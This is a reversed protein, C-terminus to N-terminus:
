KFKVLFLKINRTFRQWQEFDPVSNSNSSSPAVYQIKGQFHDVCKGIYWFAGGKNMVWLEQWFRNEVYNCNRWNGLFFDWVKVCVYFFFDIIKIKREKGFCSSKWLFFSGPLERIGCQLNTKSVNAFELNMRDSFKIFFFIWWKKNLFNILRFKLNCM